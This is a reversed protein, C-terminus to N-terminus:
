PLDVFWGKRLNKAGLDWTRTEWKISSDESMTLDLNFLDFFNIFSVKNIIKGKQQLLQIFPPMSHLQQGKKSINLSHCLCKQFNIYLFNFLLKCFVNAILSFSHNENKFKSMIRDFIQSNELYPYIQTEDFTFPISFDFTSENIGILKFEKYPIRYLYNCSIKWEKYAEIYPDKETNDELYSKLNIKRNLKRQIYRDVSKLISKSRKFLEFDLVMNLYNIYNSNKMEIIKEIAYPHKNELAKILERQIYGIKLISDEKIKYAPSFSNKKEVLVSLSKNQARLYTKFLTNYVINNNAILDYQKTTFVYNAELHNPYNTNLITTIFDERLIKPNRWEKLALPFTKKLLNFQCNGCCFGPELFGLNYERINKNCSPCKDTLYEDTHFPCYQVFNLQHFVSHFGNSICKQCICLNHNFIILSSLPSSKLLDKEKDLYKDIEIELIIYLRDKAKSILNEISKEKVSTPLYIAKKNGVVLRFFEKGNIQNAFKFKEFIGWISEHEQIWDKNWTFM